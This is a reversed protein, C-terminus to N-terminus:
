FELSIGLGAYLHGTDGDYSNSKIRDEASDTLPFTYGLTTTLTFDEYIPVALQALLEGTNFNTFTGTTENEINFSALAELDLVMDRPLEHTYSVSGELYIGDGEDFDMYATLTPQLFFETYTFSGYIEQTDEVGDLGYYIYGAEIDFQKWNFQYSLTLDTENQEETETDYNSWLEAGFSKYAFGAYPQVVWEESLKQGRWVYNSFLDVGAYGSKEDEQAWAAGAALALGFILLLAIALQRKM